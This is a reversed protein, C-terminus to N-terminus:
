EESPRGTGRGRTLAMARRHRALRRVTHHLVGVFILGCVLALNIALFASMLFVAVLLLSPLPPWGV